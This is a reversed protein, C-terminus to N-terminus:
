VVHARLDHAPGEDDLVAGPNKDFLSHLLLITGHVSNHETM